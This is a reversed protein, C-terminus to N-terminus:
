LNPVFLNRKTLPRKWKYVTKGERPNMEVEEGAYLRELIKHISPLPNKYKDLNFGKRRLEDRVETPSLSTYTAKLVERVADTFGTEPDIMDPFLEPFEEYPNIDVLTSLAFVGDRIKNIRRDITDREADLDDRQRCLDTLESIAVDLSQKYFEKGEATM